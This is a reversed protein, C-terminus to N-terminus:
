GTHFLIEMHNREEPAPDRWYFWLIDSKFYTIAGVHLSCRTGNVGSVRQAQDKAKRKVTSDPQSIRGKCEFAHWDGQGM